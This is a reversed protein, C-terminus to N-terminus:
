LFNRFNLNFLNHLSGLTLLQSPQARTRTKRNRVSIRSSSSLQGDSCCHSPHAGRWWPSCVGARWVCPAERAGHQVEDPGYTSHWSPCWKWTSNCFVLTRLRERGYELLGCSPSVEGRFGIKIFQTGRCKGLPFNAKRKKLVLPFSSKLVTKKHGYTSIELIILLM